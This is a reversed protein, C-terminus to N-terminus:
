NEDVFLTQPHIISSSSLPFDVVIGLLTNTLLFFRLTPWHVAYIMSQDSRDIIQSFIIIILTLLIKSANKLFILKFCAELLILSIYTESANHLMFVSRFCADKAFNYTQLM